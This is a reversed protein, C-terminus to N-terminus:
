KRKGNGRPSVTITISKSSTAGKADTVQATITHSGSALTATFTGGKGIPGNVSSSWVLKTTLDGDDV